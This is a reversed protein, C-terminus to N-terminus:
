RQLAALVRRCLESNRSVFMFCEGNGIWTEPNVRLILEWFREQREALLGARYRAGQIDAGNPVAAIAEAELASSHVLRFLGSNVFTETVEPEAYKPFVLWEDYQDYPLEETDQVHPIVALKGLQRWGKALEEPSVRLPGSDFSTIVLCKGIVFEPCLKLVRHLSGDDVCELWGYDEYSGTEM